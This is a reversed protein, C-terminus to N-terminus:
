RQALLEVFEGPVATSSLLQAPILVTANIRGSADPEDVVIRVQQRLGIFVYPSAAVLQMKGIGDIDAYMRNGWMSLAMRRGNSLAYQGDVADFEEYWVNRLQPPLSIREPTGTVRVEQPPRAEQAGALACSACALMGVILKKM